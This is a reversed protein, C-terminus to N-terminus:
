TTSTQLSARRQQRQSRVYAVPQAPKIQQQNTADVKHDHFECGSGRENWKKHCRSLEEQALCMAIGRARQKGRRKRHHM